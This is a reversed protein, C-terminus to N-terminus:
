LPNLFSPFFVFKYSQYTTGFILNTYSNEYGRLLYEFYLHVTFIIEYCYNWKGKWYDKAFCCATLIAAPSLCEATAKPLYWRLTILRYKFNSAFKPIFCYNVVQSTHLPQDDTHSFKIPKRRVKHLTIPWHPTTSCILFSLQPQSFRSVILGSEFM